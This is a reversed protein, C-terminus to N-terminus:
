PAPRCGQVVVVLWTPGGHNARRHVVRVHRRVRDARRAARTTATGRPSRRWWAPRKRATSPAPSPRARTRCSARSTTIREFSVAVYVPETSKAPLTNRPVHAEALHEARILEPFAAMMTSMEGECAHRLGDQTELTDRVLDRGM